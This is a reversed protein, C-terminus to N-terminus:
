STRSPRTACWRRWGRSTPTQASASCRSWGSPAGRAYGSPARRACARRARAGELYARYHVLAGKCATICARGRPVRRGQVRSAPDACRSRRSASCLSSKIPLSLRRHQVHRAAAGTLASAARTPTVLSRSARRSRPSTAACAAHAKPSAEGAHGDEKETFRYINTSRHRPSTPNPLCPTVKRNNKGGLASLFDVRKSLATGSLCVSSVLAAHADHSYACGAWRCPARSASSDKESTRNLRQMAGAPEVLIEPRALWSAHTGSARCELARSPSFFFLRSASERTHWKKAAPVLSASSVPYALPPTM